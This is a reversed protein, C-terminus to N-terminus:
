LAPVGAIAECEEACDECADACRRCHELRHKRCEAACARCIEACLSCFHEAFESGRAMFGAAVRCIIACQHNLEICRAMVRFDEEQLSVSACEQCETACENCTLICKDYKEHM